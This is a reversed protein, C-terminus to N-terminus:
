SVLIEVRRDLCLDLLTNSEFAQNEQSPSSAKTTACPPRILRSYIRYDYIKLSRIKHILWEHITYDNFNM